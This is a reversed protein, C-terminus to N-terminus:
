TFGGGKLINEESGVQHSGGEPSQRGRTVAERQHSGGEPSQRGRTVAERKHSGGEPSQRGRIVAM